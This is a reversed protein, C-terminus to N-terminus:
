HLVIVDEDPKNDLLSPMKAPLVEQAYVLRKVDADWRAVAREDAEPPLTALLERLLKVTLVRGGKDINTNEEM